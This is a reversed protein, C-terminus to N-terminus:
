MNKVDKICIYKFNEKASHKINQKISESVRYVDVSVALNDITM